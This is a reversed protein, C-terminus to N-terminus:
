ISVSMLLLTSEYKSFAELDLVLTDLQNLVLKTLALKASPTWKPFPKSGDLGSSSAIQEVASCVIRHVQQEMKGQLTYHERVLKDWKM